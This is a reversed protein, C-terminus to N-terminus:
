NTKNFENQMKRIEVIRNWMACEEILAFEDIGPTMNVEFLIPKGEQNIGFDIGYERCPLVSHIVQAASIAIKKMKDVTERQINKIITQSLVESISMVKGNLCPNVIGSETGASIENTVCTAYMGGIVWNNMLKQIHVRISFPHGNQTHSQIDEQIIYLGSKRNLKIFPHLIQQIEAVKSVSKQISQGQITFGNVCYNGDHDKRINVIARGQGTTDHKVFVSQYRNLFGELNDESYVSTKPMHKKVLPHQQLLFYQGWKGISKKM